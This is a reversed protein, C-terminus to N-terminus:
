RGAVGRLLEREMDGSYGIDDSYTYDIAGADAKAQLAAHIM